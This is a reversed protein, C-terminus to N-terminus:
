LTNTDPNPNGQSPPSSTIRRHPSALRHPQRAPYPWPDRSKTPVKKSAIKTIKFLKKFFTFFLLLFFVCNVPLM